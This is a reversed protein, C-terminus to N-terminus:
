SARTRARHVRADPDGPAAGPRDPRAAAAPRPPDARRGPLRDQVRRDAPRPRPLAGQPRALAGVPRDADPEARAGGPRLQTVLPNTDRAFTDLRDLTLRSERSFTPLITFTQKLEEDRQATTEFVRNSNEILGRLQGDRETLAGFVVGTNSILRKVAGEQRNLIDVAVSADEAFPALNGLADNLDRGHGDIAQAQSQM